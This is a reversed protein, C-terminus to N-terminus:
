GTLSVVGVNSNADAVGAVNSGNASFFKISHGGASLTPTVGILTADRTTTTSIASDVDFESGTIPNAASDVYLGLRRQCPGSANCTVSTTSNGTVFLKAPEPLDIFVEAISNNVTVPPTGPGSAAGLSPGGSVGDAGPLGQIGQSGQPGPIGQPGAPGRKVKKKASHAGGAVLKNVSPGGLAMSVISMAFLVAALGVAIVRPRTLKM